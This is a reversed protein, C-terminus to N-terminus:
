SATDSEPLTQPSNIDSADSLGDSLDVAEIQGFRKSIKQSSIHVQAIEDQTKNFYQAVKNMRDQFRQFDKGLAQLQHKMVHVHARTAEDKLVARATTLVAMLTTPSVLWVRQQQAYTVLDPYRAHIEAFIAEAPLFLMAGDGTEGPIIYKSAIDQIHKKIDQKFKSEAGPDIVAPNEIMARYNELPFKADIVITGTPKPLFLACDVRKGNSLTHQFSVHQAPLMNKVLGALQVEGFAGRSRKDTLVSQLDVVTTSLDTIRKQAEDIVALRKMVDTFTHNTKEFGKLLQQDVQQAIDRLKQQTESTLRELRQGLHSAHQELAQQQQGQITQLGQAISDQLTKLTSLQSTQQLQQAQQQASLLERVCQHTVSLQNMQAQWTTWQLKEEAVFRRWRWASGILLLVIGSLLGIIIYFAM